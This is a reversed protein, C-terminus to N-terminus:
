KLGHQPSFTRKRWAGGAVKKEYTGLPIGIDSMTGYRQAGRAYVTIYKSKPNIAENGSFMQVVAGLIGSSLLPDKTSEVKSYPKYGEGYNLSSGNRDFLVWFYSSPTRVNGVKSSKGVKHEGYYANPGIDYRVYTRDGTKIWPGQAIGTWERSGEFEFIEGAWLDKFTSM